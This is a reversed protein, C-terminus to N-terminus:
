FHSDDVKIPWMRDDKRTAADNSAPYFGIAPTRYLDIRRVPPFPCRPVLGRRVFFGGSPDVFYPLSDDKTM